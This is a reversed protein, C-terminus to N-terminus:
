SPEKCIARSPEIKLASSKGAVLLFVDSAWRIKSEMSLIPIILVSSFILPGNQRARNSLLVFVRHSVRSRKPRDASNKVEKLPNIAKEERALPRSLSGATESSNSLFNKFAM